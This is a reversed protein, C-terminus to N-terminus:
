TIKRVIRSVTAPRSLKDWQRTLYASVVRAPSERSHCALYALLSVWWFPICLIRPIRAHTVWQLPVCPVRAPQSMPIVHLAHPHTVWRFPISPIDYMICRSTSQCTTRAERPKPRPPRPRLPGGQGIPSTPNSNCPLHTPINLLRM